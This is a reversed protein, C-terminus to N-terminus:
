SPSATAKTTQHNTGPLAPYEGSLGAGTLATVLVAKWKHLQFLYQSIAAFCRTREALGVESRLVAAVYGKLLQLRAFQVRSRALPNIFQRQLKGTKQSGAAQPHIRAFFLTKPIEYYKGWLALEAMLVKESGFYPLFLTTKRLVKSRILGYSDLCGDRGLMVARFRDSPRKAVRTPRVVAMGAAAATNPEIYSIEPTDPGMLLAGAADIHRSRSHCWVVERHQDLVQVCRQLYTSECLDDYAAWKFYEGTSLEFVQNFNWSSGHNVQQRVYRIRRDRSAYDRCISETDDTSANDSIILEFDSYTQALLSEIASPLLSSANYVPMGLSVRPWHNSITM